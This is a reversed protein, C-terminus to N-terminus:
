GRKRRGKRDRNDAQRKYEEKTTWKAGEFVEMVMKLADSEHKARETEASRGPKESTAPTAPEPGSKEDAQLLKKPRTGSQGLFPDNALYEALDSHRMDVYVGYRGCLLTAQAYSWPPRGYPGILISLKSQSMGAM